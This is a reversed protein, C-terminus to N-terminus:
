IANILDKIAQKILFHAQLTGGQEQIMKSQGNATIKLETCEPNLPIQDDPASITEPLNFADKSLLTQYLNRVKYRDLQLHSEFGSTKDPKLALYYAEGRADLEFYYAPSTPLCDSWGFSLKFDSPVQVLTVQKPEYYYNDIQRNVQNAHWYLAFMGLLLLGLFVLSFHAPLKNHWNISM